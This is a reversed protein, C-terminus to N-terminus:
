SIGCIKVIGSIDRQERMEEQVSEFYHILRIYVREIRLLRYELRM